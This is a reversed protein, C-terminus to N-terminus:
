YLVSYLISICIYFYSACKYPNKEVISDQVKLNVTFMELRIGIPFLSSWRAIHFLGQRRGIEWIRYHTHNGPYTSTDERRCIFMINGPPIPFEGSLGIIESLQTGAKVNKGIPWCTNGFQTATAPWLYRYKQWKYVYIAASASVRFFPSFAKGLLGRQLRAPMDQKPLITSPLFVFFFYFPFCLGRSNTWGPYLLALIDWWYGSGM